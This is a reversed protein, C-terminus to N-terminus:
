MNNAIEPKTAYFTDTSQTIRTRIKGCQSQMCLSASYREMNLGFAPFHLASYSRIRVSKVCHGESNKKLSVFLNLLMLTAKVRHNQSALYSKIFIWSSQWFKIVDVVKEIQSTKINRHEPSGLTSIIWICYFLM